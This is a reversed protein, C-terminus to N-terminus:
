YKYQQAFIESPVGRTNDRGKVLARPRSGATTYM